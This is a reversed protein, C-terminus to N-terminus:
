SEVKLEQLANPMREVHRREVAWKVVFQGDVVVRLCDLLNLFEAPLDLDTPVDDVTWAEEHLRGDDGVQRVIRRDDHPFSEGRNNVHQLRLTELLRDLPVVFDVM